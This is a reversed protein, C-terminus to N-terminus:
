AFKELGCIKCKKYKSNPYELWTHGGIECLTEGEDVSNRENLESVPKDKFQLAYEEMVQVILEKQWEPFHEGQIRLRHNLIQQATQM